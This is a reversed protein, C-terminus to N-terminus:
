SNLAHTLMSIPGGRPRRERRQERRSPAGELEVDGEKYNGERDQNRPPPHTLIGIPLLILLILFEEVVIMFAQAWVSPDRRNFASSDPDFASIITYVVWIFLLPLCASCGFLFRRETPIIHSIRLALWIALVTIGLCVVLLIISTAKFFSQSSKVSSPDNYDAAKNGGVISLVIAVVLPLNIYRMLRPPVREEM